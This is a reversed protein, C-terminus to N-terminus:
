SAAAGAQGEGRALLKVRRCTMFGCGSPLCGRGAGGWRPNPGDPDNTRGLKLVPCYVQVGRPMKPGWEPGDGGLMAAVADSEKPDALKELAAKAGASKKLRKAEWEQVRAASKATKKDAADAAQEEPQQAGDAKLSARAAADKVLLGRGGSGAAGRRGSSAGISHLCLLLALAALPRAVQSVHTRAHTNRTRTHAHTCSM